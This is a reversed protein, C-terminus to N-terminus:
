RQKGKKHLQIRFNLLIKRAWSPFQLYHHLKCAETPCRFSWRCKGKHFELLSQKLLHVSFSNPDGSSVAATCFTFSQHVLKHSCQLLLITCVLLNLVASICQRVAGPAPVWLGHHRLTISERFGLPCLRGSEHHKRCNSLSLHLGGTGAEMAACGEERHKKEEKCPCWDQYILDWLEWAPLAM